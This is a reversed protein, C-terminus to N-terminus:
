PGAGAGVEGRIAYVRFNRHRLQTNWTRFGHYGSRYPADKDTFSLQLEGDVYLTMTGGSEFVYTVHKKVGQETPGEVFREALLHFGPDKRFRIRWQKGGGDKGETLYTVIYNPFVHYEKYAGTREATTEILGAPPNDAYFFFNINDAGAVSVVDYEVITPGEFRRRCWVTGVKGRCDVLLEGGAIRVQGTSEVLWDDMNAFDDSFLPEVTYDKGGISLTM